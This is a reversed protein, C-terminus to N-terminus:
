LPTRRPPLYLLCSFYPLSLPTWKLSTDTLLSTVTCDCCLSSKEGTAQTQEQEQLGRIAEQLMREDEEERLQKELKKQRARELRLAEKKQLQKALEQM